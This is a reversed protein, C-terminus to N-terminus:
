FCNFGGKKKKKSGQDLARMREELKERAREAELRKGKEEEVAQVSDRVRKGERRQANLDDELAYCKKKYSDMDSKTRKNQNELDVLAEELTATLQKEAFLHKEMQKVHSDKESLTQQLSSIDAHPISAQQVSSPFSGSTPSAVAGAPLPPLPIAPPPSPLSTVSGSKRVTSSDRHHNDRLQSQAKNAKTTVILNLQSVQLQEVQSQSSELQKQMAAVIANAENMAKQQSDHTNNLQSLRSSSAQQQDYSNSLQEELDDVLNAAREKEARLKEMEEARIKNQRNVENVESKLSQAQRQLEDRQRELHNCTARAQELEDALGGRSQDIQTKLNAVDTELREVHSHHADDMEKLNREMDIRAGNHDQITANLDGIEHAHSDHLSKLGHKHFEVAAQQEELQRELDSIQTRHSEIDMESSERFRTAEEAQARASEQLQALRSIKSQHMASTTKQQDLEDRLREITAKDRKREESVGETPTSRSELDRAREEAETKSRETTLLSEHLESMTSHLRSESAQMSDIAAQYKNRWEVVEQQLRASEESSALGDGLQKNAENSTAPTEPFFGPISSRTAEARELAQKLTELEGSLEQEKLTHKETLERMQQERQVIQDNMMTMANMDLGPSSTKISSRERTLGSIMSNKNEMEKKSMTIEGELVQVRESRQHLEHMVTNLQLEFNQMTDPDKEFNDSAINRLSALSRHARDITMVNQSSKRRIVPSTPTPPSNHKTKTIETKLEEVIDLTEVHLEQLENYNNKLAAYADDKEAQIRKIQGLESFLAEERQSGRHRAKYPGEDVSPELSTSSDGALSLESSLSRSSPVQGRDKSETVRADELFSTPRTSPPSVTSNRDGHHRRIEEIDQMEALARLAEEYKASLMDYENTTSEHEVRLDFLEQTVSELKEAVIRAQAPSERHEAERPLPRAKARPTDVDRSFEEDDHHHGVGNPLYKEAEEDSEPIATNAAEELTSLKRKHDLKVSKSIGNTLPKDSAFHTTQSNQPLHDFEYLLNDLKGISRQREIVHELRDLERQKLELDQDAEALREELTSIYDECQAENERIRAIEKRLESVVSTSKADGSSHGDLKSELNHLYQENTAERDILKQIRSQLQQNLTEVYACRNEKELLTSEQGSLASRTSSLQTELSQITKEYELVVQEVAEAFSNSRKLREVASDGIAETLTPTEASESNDRAKTIESILKAHRQSLANYNEQADLLHNHLEVERENQRESRDQAPHSGNESSRIQQRLFSVEAKLREIVAQKDGDDSVEQLQPKSQIARARQAYQVTNLTESLHFEAPTVCAVMYTIANGGLSDQLLRTLKSDRYSIHAGAHRSSLQSIVKGLSALGANISIGEKAREGSAGTNKLRESGALDVFHLKSDTTVWDDTGTLSEVPTSFRKNVQVPQARNKKQILNISFVAHSRSSKANIATSDTQRIASGFNLAKLLDDVSDITITRLGQLLIRGKNDERITVAPREALPVDDPLLLDRLHENYIEVYTVKMQWNRDAQQKAADVLGQTGHMSYRTPTRLGSSGRMLGPAGQLKRFLTGAARTIIGMQQPHYQEGGASTGMTYSKGSGSQGYALISVNYGQIFSDVSDKVYEWVGEQRTNEGFVRDFIFFKRGQPSEITLGTETQTHVM